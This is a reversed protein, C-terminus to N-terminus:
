HHVRDYDEFTVLTHTFSKICDGGSLLALLEMFQTPGVPKLAGSHENLALRLESVPAAHLGRSMYQRVVVEELRRMCSEMTNKTPDPAHFIDLNILGTRPDTAAEKLAESILRKAELVDDVSVEPSYRMKARAESLRIMSELQRLTASVTQSGRSRRLQMYSTALQKHAAETLRPFVTERAIAIYKSLIVTPMYPRQSPGLLFAEGEHQLLVEVRQGTAPDVYTCKPTPFRGTSAGTGAILPPREKDDRTIEEDNGSHRDTVLRLPGQDSFTNVAEDYHDMYLSLVHSALRRDENIDHRDLLLFILDFRSLLTPEIQLNEVVNLNPNWQSEKPNAAALISTRANLQAIIGAKAVSLTQQEMVEHLVSRTAENMKDLEDICCLGQDSLVLAGPELVHEGTDHDQVVFATLGVSSSGKGSTYVGRPAIEHVQTLLQSKAVGPDGCLIVNLSSRFNARNNSVAGSQSPGPDSLHAVSKSDRDTQVNEPRCNFVFNKPTGGFLQALIGRKVDEHGWISPAFSRILIDHIDPRHALLHFMDLRATDKSDMDSFSSNRKSDCVGGRVIGESSSSVMTCSKPRLEGGSSSPGSGLSATRSLEIHIADLHTSFISKIIRTNSNLRIPTSRYIGTVVVRDGPVVSDVLGSYVVLSISVPTEADSVHEPSEQLKILQKDEYISLNHQLRFSYSQGCHNCRTPEFIQGKDGSVSREINHCQWCQFCAVRIEPIIKSVRIVMGKISLLQEIHHPSLQKITILTPMRKAALYLIFDDAVKIGHCHELVGRYLDESVATMMQLCETPHNVTQQYLVPAAQQLWTLDIELTNRGRLHMSLMERLYYREGTGCGEVSATHASSGGGLTSFLTRNNDPETVTNRRIFHYSDIPSKMLGPLEFTELYRRFDEKFEELAINTGWIYSLDERRHPYTSASFVPTSFTEDNNNQLDMTHDDREETSPRRPRLPTLDILHDADM